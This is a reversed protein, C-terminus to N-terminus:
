RSREPLESLKRQHHAAPLLRQYVSVNKPNPLCRDEIEHLETVRSYDAWIGSGAAALAAAGLAATEQDIKSKLV